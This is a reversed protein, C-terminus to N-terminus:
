GRCFTLKFNFFILIVYIYSENAFVLMFISNLLDIAAVTTSFINTKRDLFPRIYIILFFYILQIIFFGIAQILPKAQCLAIFFSRLLIFLLLPVIFYYASASFQIYLSGWRTLIGSDSYLIYAATKHFKLSRRALIIIRYAAYSLLGTAM